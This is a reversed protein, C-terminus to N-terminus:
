KAHHKAWFELAEKHRRVKNAERLANRANQRVARLQKIELMLERFTEVLIAQWKRILREREASLVTPLMVASEELTTKLNATM